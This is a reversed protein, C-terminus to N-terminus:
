RRLSRRVGANTDRAQRPVHWRSRGVVMCWVDILRDGLIHQPERQESVWLVVTSKHAGIADAIAQHTMGCARLESVIAPWDVRQHRKARAIAHLMDTSM